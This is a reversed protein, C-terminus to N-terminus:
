AHTVSPIIFSIMIPVITMMRNKITIIMIMIKIRVIIMITIKMMMM